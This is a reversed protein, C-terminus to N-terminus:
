CPPHTVTEGREIWEGCKVSMNYTGRSQLQGNEDYSEYLGDWKGEKYTGKELFQGNKHYREYPGHLKGEKTGGKVELQGNSSYSEIPRIGTRAEAERVRAAAATAAAEAALAAEEKVERWGKKRYHSELIPYTFFPYIFHAVGFTLLALVFHVVAHTWVGRAAWYIPGILIVWLWSLPSASDEIYGNSPNEFRM